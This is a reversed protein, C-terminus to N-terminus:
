PMEIWQFSVRFWVGGIPSITPPKEFRFESEVGTMPHNYNFTKTGGALTSRYFSLLINFDAYELDITGKIEDIAQTYRQRKKPLGVEVETTTTTDGLTYNFGAQNFKDQLEVPFPEAM